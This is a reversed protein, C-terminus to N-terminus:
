NLPTSQMLPAVDSIVQRVFLLRPHVGLQDPREVVGVGVGPQAIGFAKGRLQLLTMGTCGRRQPLPQLLHEGDGPQARSPRRALVSVVDLGMSDIIEMTLAVLRLTVRQRSPCITNRQVAAPMSLASRDNRRM